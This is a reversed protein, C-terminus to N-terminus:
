PREREMRKRTCRSTPQSARAGTRAGGNSALPGLDATLWFPHLQM